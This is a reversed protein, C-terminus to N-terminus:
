VKLTWPGGSPYFYVHGDQTFGWGFTAAPPTPLDALKDATYLSFGNVPSLVQVGLFGAPPGTPDALIQVGGLTTGELLLSSPSSATVNNRVALGGGGLDAILTGGPGFDNMTVGGAGSAIDVSFGNGSVDEFFIGTSSAAGAVASFGGNQSLDGPSATQGAGTLSKYGGGGIPTGGAGVVVREWDPAGATMSPVISVIRQWDPAGSAM